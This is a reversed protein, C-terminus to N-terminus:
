LKDHNGCASVPGRLNVLKFITVRSLASLLRCKWTHGFSLFLNQQECKSWVPFNFFQKEVLLLINQVFELYKLLDRNKFHGM